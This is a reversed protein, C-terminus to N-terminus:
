KDFVFDLFENRVENYIKCSLLFHTEDEADGNCSPNPCAARSEIPISM